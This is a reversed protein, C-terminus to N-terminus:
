LAAQLAELSHGSRQHTWKAWGNIEHGVCAKLAPSPQPFDQEGVRVWGDATVTGRHVLGKRPQEHVLDDDAELVGAELLPTLAGPRRVIHSPPENVKRPRPKGPKLLRRLVDSVSELPRAQEQLYEFVDTELKVPYTKM